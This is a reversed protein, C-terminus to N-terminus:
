AGTALADDTTPGAAASDRFVDVLDVKVPIDALRAYVTEGLTKQGANQPNVPIVRFGKLQLYRFVFHSPRVWNTIAGVIAVTRPDLYIRRLDADDYQLDDPM